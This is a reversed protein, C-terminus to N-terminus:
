AARENGRKFNGTSKAMILQAETHNLGGIKDIFRQAEKGKLIKVRKDHWYIFVKEDKIVQYKFVDGDLMNRKDIETM